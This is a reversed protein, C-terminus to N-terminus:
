EVTFQIGSQSTFTGAQGPTQAVPAVPQAADLATKAEREFKKSELFKATTNGPTGLFIALEELNNALKEQAAKKRRLWDQLPGPRLDTPLATNLAFKLESESLAGFTTAGVVDLGLRGQLNKLEVSAARFSPFLKAIPGTAAGSESLRIAEDLNSINVRTKTLQDFAAESRKIASTAGTRTGARLGQLDVGFDRAKQIGETRASGSLKNGAPDTVNVNGDSMVQITTGDPLIESTRVIAKGRRSAVGSLRDIQNQTNSRQSTLAEKRRTLEDIVGQPDELAQARLKIADENDFAPDDKKEGFMRTLNNVIQNPEGGIITDIDTIDENFATIAQNGVSIAQARKTAIQQQQLQQQGIDLRQQGIDRQQQLGSLQLRRDERARPTFQQLSQLFPSIDPVLSAGDAM